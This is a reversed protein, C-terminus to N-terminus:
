ALQERIASDSVKKNPWRLTVGCDKANKELEEKSNVVSAVEGNERRSVWADKFAKDEGPKYATWTEGAYLSKSLDHTYKYHSMTKKIHNRPKAVSGHTSPLRTKRDKNQISRAQSLVPM